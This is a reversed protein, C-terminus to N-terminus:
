KDEVAKLVKGTKLDLWVSGTTGYAPSKFHLRLKGASTEIHQIEMDIDMWGNKSFFGNQFYGSINSEWFAQCFPMSGNTNTEFHKIVADLGEGPQVQKILSEAWDFVGDTMVNDARIIESETEVYLNSYTLIGIGENTEVQSANVEGIWVKGTAPDVFATMPFDFAKSQNTPNKTSWVSYVAKKADLQVVGGTARYLVVKTDAWPTKLAKLWTGEATTRSIAVHLRDTRSCGFLGGSLVLALCLILKPKM